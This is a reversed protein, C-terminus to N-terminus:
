PDHAFIRRVFFLPRRLLSQDVAQQVHRVFFAPRIAKVLPHPARKRNSPAYDFVDLALIMAVDGLPELPERAVCYVASKELKLTFADRRNWLHIGDDAFHGILLADASNDPLVDEFFAGADAAFDVADVDEHIMWLKM